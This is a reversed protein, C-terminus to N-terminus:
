INRAHRRLLEVSLLGLITLGAIPPLWQGIFSFRTFGLRTAVIAGAAALPLVLCMTIGAAGYLRSRLSISMYVALGGSLGGSSWQLYAVIAVPLRALHAGLIVFAVVLGMALLLSAARIWKLQVRHYSLTTPSTSPLPGEWNAAFYAFAYMMMGYAFQLVPLALCAAGSWDAIDGLSGPGAHPLVWALLAVYSAMLAATTTLMTKCFERTSAILTLAFELERDPSGPLERSGNAPAPGEHNQSAACM